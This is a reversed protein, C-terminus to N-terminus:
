FGGTLKELAGRSKARLRARDARWGRIASVTHIILALGLCGFGVVGVGNLVERPLGLRPSPFVTALFASVVCIFSVGALSSVLKHKPKLAYAWPVVLFIPARIQFNGWNYFDTMEFFLGIAAVCFLLALVARFLGVIKQSM